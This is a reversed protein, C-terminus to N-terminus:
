QIERVVIRRCDVATIELKRGEENYTDESVVDVREDGIEAIGAPRLPTVTMGEKGLYETKVDTTVYGQETMTRDKLIIRKFFGKEADARRYLIIFAAIGVIM